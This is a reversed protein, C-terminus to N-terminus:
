LSNVKNNHFQNSNDPLSNNNSHLSNATKLAPSASDATSNRNYRRRLRLFVFSGYDTDFIMSISFASLRLPETPLCRSIWM